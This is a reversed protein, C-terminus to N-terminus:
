GFKDFIGETLGPFGLMELKNFAYQSGVKLFAEETEGPFKLFALKGFATGLGTEPVCVVDCIIQAGANPAGALSALAVASVAAPGVIRRKRSRM